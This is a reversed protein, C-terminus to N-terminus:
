LNFKNILYEKLQAGTMEDPNEIGNEGALERLNKVRMTMIETKTHTEAPTNDRIVPVVEGARYFVGNVKVTHRYVM